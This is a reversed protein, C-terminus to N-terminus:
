VVSESIKDFEKIHTSFDFLTDDEKEEDDYGEYLDNKVKSLLKFLEDKVRQEDNYLSTTYHYQEGHNIDYVLIIGLFIKSM